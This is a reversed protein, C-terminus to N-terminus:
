TVHKMQSTVSNCDGKINPQEIHFCCHFMYAHANSVIIHQILTVLLVNQYEGHQFLQILKLSVNHWIAIIYCGFRELAILVTM